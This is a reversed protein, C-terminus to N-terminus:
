QSVEKAEALRAFCLGKGLTEDGGVQIVPSRSLLGGVYELLEAASTTDDKRRSRNALVLAYFVSEAPIFEQYFLAGTRVTKLEYDLGIRAVVETSNRVFYTFDDDALIVFHSQIRERASNHVASSVREAWPQALEAGDTRAFEFEELLMKGDQIFLSESACLAQGSAVGPVPAPPELGAISLDRTFRELVAPCTIWAFVGKLSRVPFALLRADSLAIAGAHDSADPSEPGFAALLLEKSGDRGAAEWCAHRLVGKLSTSPISPWQTHRERNVPLDIAGLSTGSGPHVATQAHLFLIRVQQATESM